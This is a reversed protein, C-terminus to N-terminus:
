KRPKPLKICLVDGNKLKRVRGKVSLTTSVDNKEMFTGQVIQKNGTKKDITEVIVEFGKYSNIIGDHLLDSIGPTTVEIENNMSIYDGIEGGEELAKNISKSIESIDLGGSSMCDDNEFYDELNEDEFILNEEDDNDDTSMTVGGKITVVIRGESWQVSIQDNSAGAAIAAQRIIREGSARLNGDGAQEHSSLSSPVKTCRCRQFQPSISVFQGRKILILSSITYACSPVFALLLLFSLISSIMIPMCARGVAARCALLVRLLM